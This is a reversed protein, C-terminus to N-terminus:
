NLQLWDRKDAWEVIVCLGPAGVIYPAAANEGACLQRTLDCLMHLTM